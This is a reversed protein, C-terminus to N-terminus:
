RRSGDFTLQGRAASSGFAGHCMLAAQFDSVSAITPSLITPHRPARQQMNPACAQSASKSEEHVAWGLRGCLAILTARGPLRLPIEGTKQDVAAYSYTEGLREVIKIHRM